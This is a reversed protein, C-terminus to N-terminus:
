APAGHQRLGTSPPRDPWWRVSSVIKDLHARAPATAGQRLTVDLEITSRSVSVTALAMNKPRRRRAPRTSIAILADIGRFFAGRSSDCLPRQHRFLSLTFGNVAQSIM